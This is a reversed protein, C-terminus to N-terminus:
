GNKIENFVSSSFIVHYYQELKINSVISKGNYALWAHATFPQESIGIVLDVNTNKWYSLFVSAVSWELCKIKIPIFKSAKNVCGVIEPLLIPNNISKSSMKLYRIYKFCLYMLGFNVLIIAFVLCLWAMMCDILSLNKSRPIKKLYKHAEIEIEPLIPKKKYSPLSFENNIINVDIIKKKIMKEVMISNVIKSNIYSELSKSEEHNLLYYKDKKIDFIVIGRKGRTAYVFSSLNIFDKNKM